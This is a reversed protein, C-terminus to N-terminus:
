DRRLVCTGAGLKYCPRVRNESLVSLSLQVAHSCTHMGMQELLALLLKIELLTHPKKRLDSSFIHGHYLKAMKLGPNVTESSM